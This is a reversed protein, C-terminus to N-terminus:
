IKYGQERLWRQTGLFAGIEDAAEIYLTREKKKGRALVKYVVHFRYPPLFSYNTMGKVRLVTARTRGRKVVPEGSM